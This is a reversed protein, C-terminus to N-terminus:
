INHNISCIVFYLKDSYNRTNREGEGDFRLNKAITAESKSILGPNISRKKSNPGTALFKMLIVLRKMKESM